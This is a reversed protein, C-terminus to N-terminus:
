GRRIGGVGGVAAGFGLRLEIGRRGRSEVGADRGGGEGWRSEKEMTAAGAACGRPPASGVSAGSCCAPAASALAGLRGQRGGGGEGWRSEEV